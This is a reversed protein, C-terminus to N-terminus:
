ILFFNAATQLLGSVEVVAQQRVLTINFVDLKEEFNKLLPGKKDVKKGEALWTKYSEKYSRCLDRHHKIHSWSWNMRVRRISELHCNYAYLWWQRAHNRYATVSPRHQRYLSSVRMRDLSELLGMLGVYQARSLNLGLHHLTVGLSAKPITFPVPDDRNPHPNLQLRASLSLPSLIYETDCVNDVIELAEIAEDVMEGAVDFSKSVPITAKLAQRLEDKTLNENSLLKSNPHWYVGLGDLSLLQPSVFYSIKALLFM